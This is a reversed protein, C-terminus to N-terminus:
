RYEWGIRTGTGDGKFQVLHPTQRRNLNKITDHCRVKAKQGRKRPIPDDFSTPWGMEEAASLVIEQNVSPQRFHKLIHRGWSFIHIERDYSPDLRGLVLGDRAAEFAGDELSVLADALFWNAFAEGVETLTFCSTESLLLSNAPPFSAQGGAPSSVSQLHEIHNQFLM